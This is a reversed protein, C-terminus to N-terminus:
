PPSRKANGKEEETPANVVEITLKDGPSLKFDRKIQMLIGICNAWSKPETSTQVAVAGLEGNNGEYHIVTILGDNVHM